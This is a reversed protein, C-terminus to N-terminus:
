IIVIRKKFATLIRMLRNVVPTSIAGMLQNLEAVESLTESYPDSSVSPFLRVADNIWNYVRVPNAEEESGFRLFYGRPIFGYFQQAEDLLLIGSVLTVDDLITEEAEDIAYYELGLGQEYLFYKISLVTAITIPDGSQLILEVDQPVQVDPNDTFFQKFAEMAEEPTSADFDQQKIPSYKDVQNLSGVTIRLKM